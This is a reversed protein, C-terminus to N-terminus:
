KPRVHIVCTLTTDEVFYIPRAEQDTVIISIQDLFHTNLPKYISNHIGRNGGNQLSFCDLINVLQGGFNSPQIIDTYLYLYDVGCRPSPPVSSKHLSNSGQKNKFLNYTVTEKFGFVKALGSNLKLSISKIDGILKKPSNKNTCLIEVKREDENWQLVKGLPFLTKFRDGYYVKLHSLLLNNTIKVMKELDGALVNQHFKVPLTSIGINKQDTYITMYFLENNALIGYYQDPYLISVLGVEYETNNELVIPSPLRNVFRAPNNEPFYTINGSSTLYLIHDTSM